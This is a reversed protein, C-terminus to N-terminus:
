VAGLDITGGTLMVDAAVSADPGNMENSLGGFNANNVFVDASATNAHQRAFPVYRLFDVASVLAAAAAFGEAAAAAAASQSASAGSADAAGDAAIASGAAATASNGAATAHASSTDRAAEAAAQAAEADLVAQIIESFAVEPAPDVLGSVNLSGSGVPVALVFVRAGESLQVTVGYRGPVLAFGSPLAGSGTLTTTVVEDFIVSAGQAVVGGTKRWILRANPYTTGTPDRFVGTIVRPTDSM